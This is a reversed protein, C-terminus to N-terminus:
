YGEHWALKARVMNCDHDVYCRVMRGHAKRHSPDHIFRELSHILEGILLVQNRDYRDIVFRAVEREGCEKGADQEKTGWVLASRVLEPLQQFTKFDPKSPPVPIFESVRVM